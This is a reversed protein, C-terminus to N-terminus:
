NNNDYNPINDTYTSYALKVIVYGDKDRNSLVNGIYENKTSYFANGIPVDNFIKIKILTDAPLYQINEKIEPKSKINLETYPELGEPYKNIIEEAKKNADKVWEQNSNKPPRDDEWKENMMADRLVTLCSLAKSIHSMGSDKDIDEGEWWGMLHRLAADYYVSARVGVARYNHRRYKRAGEMLGLAIEAIVNAPVCSFPVKKIGIADKPNSDKKEMNEKELRKCICAPSSIPLERNQNCELKHEILKNTELHEELNFDLYKNPITILTFGGGDENENYYPSRSGLDVISEDKFTVMLCVTEGKYPGDTVKVLCWRDKSLNDCYHIPAPKGIIRQNIDM